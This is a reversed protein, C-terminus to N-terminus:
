CALKLVPLLEPLEFEFESEELEDDDESPLVPFRFRGTIRM